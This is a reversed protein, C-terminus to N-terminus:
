VRHLPFEIFFLAGQGAVSAFGIQGQMAEVLEKSLALGLGTGGKARSDSADAQSFRKFIHPTFEAAIGPGNDQVSIRVYDASLKVEVEVLGAAPSFKIANSLLNAMVQLFRFRDLRLLVDHSLQAVDSDIAVQKELAYTQNEAIAQEVLSKVSVVEPTFQMKGDALKEIDLLDNILFSLRQSNDNALKLLHQHPAALPALRESLVLGLAGRIATLPTRLEHSVTSVFESKMQELRQRGTIDQATAYLKGTDPDPTTFWELSIYHGNKHRLRNIFGLSMAGHELRQVEASTTAIDDPHLLEAYPTLLLDQESYGLLTSFAKNVREFYGARNTICMLNQSLDFFQQLEFSTHEQMTIDRAIGLYGSLRSKSDYMPTIVLQVWLESGHKCRYIWRRSEKGHLKPLITFIDFGTVECNLQKSLEAARAAVESLDHFLMPTSKGTLEAAKYGLMLEAGRNFLTIVGTCDTAIIAVESAANMVNKMTTTVDQLAAYAHKQGTIDQFLGYVRVCVGREFEPIGISRVWREEGKATIIEFEEDFTTGSRLAAEFCSTIRRRNDGAKYFLIAQATDCEFTDDVQHIRKTVSDWRPSSAPMTVEWTGIDAINGARILLDYTHKHQQQMTIALDHDTIDELTGCMLLPRSRMGWQVVRGRLQVHIWHGDKHQLRLQASFLASQTTFHQVLAQKVAGADDPHLWQQLTTLTLSQLETLRYGAIEACRANLVVGGTQICWQWTAINGVEIIANLKSTESLPLDSPVAAM